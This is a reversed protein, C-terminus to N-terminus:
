RYETMKAPTKPVKAFACWPPRLPLLLKCRGVGLDAMSGNPKSSLAATHCSAGEDVVGAIDGGIPADVDVAVGNKMEGGDGTSRTRGGTTRLSPKSSKSSKLGAGSIVCAASSSKPSKPSKSSAGGADLIAENWAASSSANPNPSPSSSSDANWGGRGASHIGIRNLGIGSGISSECCILSSSPEVIRLASTSEMSLPSPIRCISEEVCSSTM